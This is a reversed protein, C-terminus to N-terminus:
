FFVRAETLGNPVSITRAPGEPVPLIIHTGIFCLRWEDLHFCEINCKFKRDNRTEKSIDIYRIM